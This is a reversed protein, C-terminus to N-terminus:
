PWIVRSGSLPIYEMAEPGSFADDSLSVNLQSMGMKLQVCSDDENVGTVYQGILSRFDSGSELNYTNFVNLVDGNGFQLQLYDHVQEAACIKQDILSSLLSDIM